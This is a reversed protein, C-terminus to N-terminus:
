GRTRALQQGGLRTISTNMDSGRWGEPAQLMRRACGACSGSQSQELVREEYDDDDDSGATWGRGPRCPRLRMRMRRLRCRGSRALRVQDVSVHRPCCVWWEWESRGSRGVGAMGFLCRLLRSPVLFEWVVCSQRRAHDVLVGPLDATPVHCLVYWSPRTTKSARCNLYTLYMLSSRRRPFPLPRRRPLRPLRRIPCRCHSSHNESVKSFSFPGVNKRYRTGVM